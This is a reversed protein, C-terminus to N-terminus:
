NKQKASKCRVVKAPGGAYNMLCTFLFCTSVSEWQDRPIRKLDCFMHIHEEASLEPWLIDLHM